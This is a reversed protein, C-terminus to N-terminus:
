GFRNSRVPSDARHRPRTGERRFAGASADGQLGGLVSALAELQALDELADGELESANVEAALEEVSGEVAPMEMAPGKEQFQLRGAAWPSTNVQYFFTTLDAAFPPEQTWCTAHSWLIQGARYEFLSGITSEDLASLDYAVILGPEDSGGSPWPELSVGLEQATAHALIASDRDELVFVRPVASWQGLVAAVRRIGELCLENHDQVFAYRGNMGADMGHPSLHLLLGTNIAFHWGRLDNEDLPSVSRIAEARAIMQVLNDRPVALDPDGSEEVLARLRPLVETAAELDACMLSNFGQLYCLMPNNNVLEPAQWLAMCAQQYNGSGELACVLEMLVPEADPVMQWCRTLVTAAIGHLGHEILEYGLNYLTQPDNPNDSAQQVLQGFEEGAIAAGIKAFIGLADQWHSDEELKGPSLKGPGLKGPFHLVGQFHRYAGQPDGDELAALAQAREEQYPFSM